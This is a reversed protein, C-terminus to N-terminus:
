VKMLNRLPWALVKLASKFPGTPIRDAVRMLFRRAKYWGERMVLYVMAGAAM